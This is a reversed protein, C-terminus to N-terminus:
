IPGRRNINYTLSIVLWTKAHWQVRIIIIKLLNRRHGIASTCFSWSLTHRQHFVRCRLSLATFHQLRFMNGIVIHSWHLRPGFDSNNFIDSDFQGVDQSKSIKNIKNNQFSKFHTTKNLTQVNNGSTCVECYTLQHITTNEPIMRLICQFYRLLEYNM